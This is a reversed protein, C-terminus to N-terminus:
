ALILELAEHMRRAGGLRRALDNLLLPDADDRRVYRALASVALDRGVVHPLRMADVICREASYIWFPEDAETRQSLRELDFTEAAFRHLTTAPTDIKPWHAGRPVALHISSPLEDSLEWYSLGSNLCVTAGPVRATVAAFESNMAPDSGVRQMVGRSPSWLAGEDRLRYIVHRPVGAEVGERVRFPRNGFREAILELESSRM